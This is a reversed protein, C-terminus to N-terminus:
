CFFVWGWDGGKGILFKWHVSCIGIIDSLLIHFGSSSLIFIKKLCDFLIYKEPDLFTRKKQFDKSGTCKRTRWQDSQDIFHWYVHLWYVVYLLFTSIQPFAKDVRHFDFPVCSFASMDKMLTVCWWGRQSSAVSILSHHETLTSGGRSHVESHSRDKRNVM